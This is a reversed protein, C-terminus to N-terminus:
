IFPLLKKIKKLAVNAEISDISLESGSSYEKSLIDTNEEKEIIPPYVVTYNTSISKPFPTFRGYHNGNSIVLVPTNVSVAIHVASTENSVMFNSNAIISILQNLTTKGCINIIRENTIFHKKIVEGNSKDEPGGAILIDFDYLALLSSIFDIWKDVSWRRFAAGGGIFLTMYNDSQISNGEVNSKNIYPKILDITHEIFGEVIQKNRNFEFIDKSEIFKNYHKDSIRKQWRTTNALDGKSTIKNEAKIYRAITEGVYYDRSYTPHFLLSYSTDQIEKLVRKRFLFDKQFKIPNVWIFRDIWENDFHEAIGKWVTNGILTIAHNKYKESRAIIEIFNRFLIYDGIADMRVIVLSNNKKNSPSNNLGLDRILYWIYKIINKIPNM